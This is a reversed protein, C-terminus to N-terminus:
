KNIQSLIFLRKKKKSTFFGWKLCCRFFLLCHKQFLVFVNEVAAGSVSAHNQRSSMPQYAHTLRQWFRPKTTKAGQPASQIPSNLPLCLTVITFIFYRSIQNNCIYSISSFKYLKEYKKNKPFRM